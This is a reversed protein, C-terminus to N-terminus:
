PITSAGDTLAQGAIDRLMESAIRLAAEKKAPFVRLKIRLAVADDTGALRIEGLFARQKDVRLFLNCSDDIREELTKALVDLEDPPLRRLLAKPLDASSTKAEIVVIENGHHGVTHRRDLESDGFVERIAKEVRDM